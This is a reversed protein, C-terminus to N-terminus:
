RPFNRQQAERQQMLKQFQQAPTLAPPRKPPPTPQYYRQPPPPVYTHQPFSQPPSPPASGRHSLELRRPMGSKTAGVMMVNYGAGELLDSLVDSAGAPGYVGFIRQDRGLGTITMGGSKSLKDLIAALSSNDATVTLKGDALHISAPQPPKDLLSAPQSPATPGAKAARGSAPSTQGAANAQPAAKPPPPAPQASSGGATVLLIAATWAFARLRRSFHM